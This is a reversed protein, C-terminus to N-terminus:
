ELSKELDRIYGRGADSDADAPAWAPFLTEARDFPGNATEKFVLTDTKLVLTHYRPKPMRYYFQLGSAYDGMKIVELVGGADDFIVADARGELIELSETKVSHKHPRVYGEKKLLIFMEHIKEDTSQHTCLRM